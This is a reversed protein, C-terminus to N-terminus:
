WTRSSRGDEVGASPETRFLAAIGPTMDLTVPSGEGDGEAVAILADLGLEQARGLARDPGMVFLGTAYADAEEGTAAVVTVSALGRAPRGTRPDFLHAYRRGDEFFYREYDGSTGVARDVLELVGLLSGSRRPHRVGVRWIARGPPSGLAILTGGVDILADWVGSEALAEAARDAAYGKGVAGFDLGVGPARFSVARQMTDLEVLSWGVRALAGDIAGPEPIRGPGDHFGWLLSLPLVTLDFAGDTRETYRNCRRLLAFLEDSVPVAGDAASRNLRALASDDRHASLLADVGEIAKFAAAFTVADANEGPLTVRVLAGM